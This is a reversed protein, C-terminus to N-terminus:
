TPAIREKFWEETDLWIKKEKPEVKGGTQRDICFLEEQLNGKEATKECFAQNQRDISFFDSALSGKLTLLSDRLMSKRCLYKEAFYLVGTM